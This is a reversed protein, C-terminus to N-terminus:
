GLFYEFAINNKGTRKVSYMVSDVSEILKDVSSPPKTFTMVGISFTVPWGNESMDKQLLYHIREIVQRSGADSIEPFMIAFEDGGLRAVTDIDRTHQRLTEAVHRLLTDGVIHGRSDNIKKFDDLDFYAVTFPSGQRESRHMALRAFNGFSRRNAIGTLPDQTALEEMQRRDRKVITLLIIIILFFGLHALANWVTLALHLTSHRGITDSIELVTAAFVSTIIGANKSAYWSVLLVPFLYFIDIDFDSAAYFDILGVILVLLWSLVILSRRHLSLIFLNVRDLM